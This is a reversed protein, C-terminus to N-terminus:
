SEIGNNEMREQELRKLEDQVKPTNFQFLKYYLWHKRKFTKLKKGNDSYITIKCIIPHFETKDGIMYNNTEFYETKNDARDLKVLM